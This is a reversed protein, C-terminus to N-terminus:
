CRPGAHLPAAILRYRITTTDNVPAAYTVTDGTGNDVVLDFMAADAASVAPIEAYVATTGPSTRAPISDRLRGLDTWLGTAPTYFTTYPASAPWASVNTTTMVGRCSNRSSTSIMNTLMSISGPFNGVQLGFSLYADSIARLAMATRTARSRQNAVVLSPAVAAVLAAIVATMVIVWV